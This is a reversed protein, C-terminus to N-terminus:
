FLLFRMLGSFIFDFAGLVAGVVVCVVAVLISLRVTERRSPWHAKRLENFADVFFRFRSPKKSLVPAPKAPKPKAKPEEKKVLAAKPPQTVAQGPEQAADSAPPPTGGGPIKKGPKRKKGKSGM